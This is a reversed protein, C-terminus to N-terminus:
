GSRKLLYRHPPGYGQEAEFYGLKGPICLLISPLGYGVVRQVAESLPMEMGDIEDISSLVYCSKPAQHQKLLMSIRDADIGHPPISELYREDLLNRYTHSLRNIFAGRKSVSFLEIRSRERRERRIFAQIFIVEHERNV